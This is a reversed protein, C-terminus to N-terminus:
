GSMRELGEAGRTGAGRGRREGRWGVVGVRVGRARGREDREFRRGRWRWSGGWSGIGEVCGRARDVGVDDADELLESVAAGAGAGDLGRERTQAGHMGLLGLGGGLFGMWRDLSDVLEGVGRGM